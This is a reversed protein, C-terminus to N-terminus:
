NKRSKEVTCNLAALYESPPEITKGSTKRLASMFTKSTAQETLIANKQEKTLPINVIVGLHYCPVGKEQPNFVISKNFNLKFSGNQYKTGDLPLLVHTVLGIERGFFQGLGAHDALREIIEIHLQGGFYRAIDFIDLLKLNEDAAFWGLRQFVSMRWNGDADLAVASLPLDKSVAELDRIAEFCGSNGCSVIMARLVKAGGPTILLDDM